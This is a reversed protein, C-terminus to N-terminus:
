ADDWNEKQALFWVKERTARESPDSFAANELGVVSEIDSITLPRTYPHLKTPSKNQNEQPIIVFERQPEQLTVDTSGSSDLFSSLKGPSETLPVAPAAKEPALDRPM